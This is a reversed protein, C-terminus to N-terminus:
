SSNTHNVLRVLQQLIFHSFASTHLVFALMFNRPKLLQSTHRRVSYSFSTLHKHDAEKFVMCFGVLFQCPFWKLTICFDLLLIFGHFFLYIYWCPAGRYSNMHAVDSEHDFFFFLWCPYPLCLSSCTSLAFVYVLVIHRFSCCATGQHYLTLHTHTYFLCPFSPPHSHSSLSFGLTKQLWYPMSALKPKMRSVALGVELEAKPWLAVINCVSSAANTNVQRGALCLLHVDGVSM